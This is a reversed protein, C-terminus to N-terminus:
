GVDLTIESRLASKFGSKEVKVEQAGLPLSPVYYSGDQSTTASRTSGSELRKVTVIAGRIVAGTADKVDGSISATVQANVTLPSLSLLVVLVRWYHHKM